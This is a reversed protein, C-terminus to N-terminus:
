PRHDWRVDRAGPDASHRGVSLVYTGPHLVWRGGERVRLRELPVRIAVPATQRAPVEVRAFGLLRRAPRTSDAPRGGYVQVVDASDLPGTNALTTRVVLEDGERELTADGLEWTAYSLGFGFPYAADHHDRALRWYGHWRDYTVADADRDFPPLHDADTPITCPLRGTADVRGLLVDALAHGGEMGPYWLQVIAPVDARWPEMVVASGSIVVVVTRRNAAAVARILGEDDAHLTLSARDGGTSFGGTSREPVAGPPADPGPDAAVAATFASALDPDDPGPLLSRLHATGADGIYEGEDDRTCGVVVVAVDATAAVEAAVTRDHGDAHVVDIGPLAARLGALPTVASPAWVDSSGGDGLNRLDALRGLVAV